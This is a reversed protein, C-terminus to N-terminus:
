DQRKEKEKKGEKKIFHIRPQRRAIKYIQSAEFESIEQRQSGIAPILHTSM